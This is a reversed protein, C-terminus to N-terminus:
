DGRGFATIRAQLRELAFRVAYPDIVAPGRGGRQRRLDCLAVVSGKRGIDAELTPVGDRTAVILKADRSVKVGNAAATTHGAGRNLLFYECLAAIDSQDIMQRVASVTRKREVSVAARIYLDVAEPIAPHLLCMSRLFDSAELNGIEDPTSILM